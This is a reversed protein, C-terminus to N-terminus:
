WGVAISGPGMCESVCGVDARSRCGVGCGVGCVPVSFARHSAHASTNTSISPTVSLAVVLMVTLRTHLVPGPPCLNSTDLVAIASQTTVILDTM